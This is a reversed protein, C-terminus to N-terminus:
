YFTQNVTQLKPILVEHFYYFRAYQRGNRATPVKAAARAERKSMVVDVEFMDTMLHYLEKRYARYALNSISCYWRSIIVQPPANRSILSVTRFFAILVLTGYNYTDQQEQVICEVYTWEKGSGM